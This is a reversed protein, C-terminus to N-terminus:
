YCYTYTSSGITSTTCYLSTRNDNNGGSTNNMSNKASEIYSDLESKKAKLESTKSESDKLDYKEYCDIQEQYGNSLRTLLAIAKAINNEASEREEDSIISNKQANDVCISLDASKKLTALKDIKEQYGEVHFKDYCSIAMEYKESALETSMVEGYFGELGTNPEKFINSKILNIDADSDPYINKYGSSLCSNLNKNLEKVRNEEIKKPIIIAAIIAGVILLICILISLIIRSKKNKKNSKRAKELSTYYDVGDKRKISITDDVECQFDIKDKPVVIIKDDSTIIKITDHEIKYIKARM